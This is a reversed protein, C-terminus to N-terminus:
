PEDSGTTLALAVPFVPGSGARRLLAAIVSFTLKSDVMDDVLLIPQDMGKWPEIQFAGDLNRAQQFRNRMQKQPLTDRIKRVAARCELKLEIALREALDPVLRGHHSSPVPVVWRPAPQPNWRRIMEAFGRVLEDSFREDRYKGQRVLDGWGADGWECLVRGQEGALEPAVRGSLGYIPLSDKPWLKCLELPYNTGRLFEVASALQAESFINSSVTRGLCNACHGCPKAAPDDLARALFLMLCDKTRTYERMQRKEQQRIATLRDIRQWFEPDLSAATAQWKNKQQLVPPPSELSLLSLAKSIEGFSINAARQLDATSLPKSSENLVRLIAEVSSRSPFSAHIFYEAIEEDESGCLLIGYAKDLARGARGVQQYYQVVSGPSQFHIVFSLNPKDYGMGLATTAILAKIENRLLRQEIKERLGAEGADDDLGGWYAECDFGHEQLFRAVNQVDRITLCYVIGSGPLKRLAQELWALRASQPPLHLVQLRLSAREMGGRMITLRTGIQRHLDAVVRNNATATTALVPLNSPLSQLIRTIRRYDPRFDHGWDSICHAEDIILLGVRSAIPLLIEAIFAPNALREPSILLLDIEGRELQQQIEPQEARSKAESTLRRANLGSRKAAEEQNRMLALLPSILIAPGSGQSRLLRAAIFYVNSKGWGTKQVVLLPGRRTILHEIAEWQGPRFEAAPNGTSRRLLELAEAHPSDSM